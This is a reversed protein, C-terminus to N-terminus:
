YKRSNKMELRNMRNEWQKLKLQQQQPKWINSQKVLNLGASTYKKALEYEKLHHEHIIALDEYIKMQKREDVFHLATLYSEIATDFAKERKLQQALYFHADKAELMNYKSTVMELVKKSQNKEKLDAYWKGINTFTTATEELEQEFLLQTSRSYLTILSLLDWENHYLVKMLADPVGSKVADLYIIPALYGPIDDKRSFGLKEEEVQKLKMRSLDDKWIRKSSHLLDIQRQERIKPIHQQNLTWRMQLQPWDFSKGNYSVITANKQWLKSEFLMAAENSPDALVYQTLTFGQETPEIFGLLFIYTGVGRLGTTETDFFLVNEDVNLSYPHEFNARNWLDLAEYFSNLPISGHKYDEAYHVVRQFLVGFDNEVLELGAEEWQVMYQPQEPKQFAPRTVQQSPKKQLLKKM